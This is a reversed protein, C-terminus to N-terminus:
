NCKVVSIIIILFPISLEIFDVIGGFYVKWSILINLIEYTYESNNKWHNM